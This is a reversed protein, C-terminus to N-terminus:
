AHQNPPSPHAHQTTEDARDAPEVGTDCAQKPPNESSDPPQQFGHGSCPALGGVFLCLDNPHSTLCGPYTSASPSRNTPFTYTLRSWVTTAGTRSSFTDSVPEVLLGRGAGGAPEGSRARARRDSDRPSAYSKPKSQHSFRAWEMHAAVPASGAPQFGRQIGADPLLQGM